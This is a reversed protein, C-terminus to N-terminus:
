VSALKPTQLGNHILRNYCQNKPVTRTIAFFTNSPCAGLGSLAWYLFLVIILITSYCSFLNLFRALPSTLISAAYTLSNQYVSKDYNFFIYGRQLFFYLASLIAGAILVIRQYINMNHIEQCKREWYRKDM